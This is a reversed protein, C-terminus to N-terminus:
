PLRFARREHSGWDGWGLDIWADTSSAGVVLWRLTDRGGPPALLDYAGIQRVGSYDSYVTVANMSSNHVAVNLTDGRDHTEGEEFSFVRDIGPRDDRIRQPLDPIWPLWSYNTTEISDVRLRVEGAREMWTEAPAAGMQFGRTGSGEVLLVEVGDLLGVIKWRPFTAGSPPLDIWTMSWRSGGVPDWSSSVVRTLPLDISGDLALGEFLPELSRSSGRTLDLREAEELDCAGLFAVAIALTALRPTM